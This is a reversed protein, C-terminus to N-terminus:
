DDSNTVALAIATIILAATSIGTMYKNVRQWFRQKLTKAPYFAGFWWAIITVWGVLFAYFHLNEHAIEETSRSDMGGNEMDSQSKTPDIVEPYPSTTDHLVNADAQHSPPTPPTTNSLKSM